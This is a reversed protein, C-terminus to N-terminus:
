CQHNSRSTQYAPKPASGFLSCLHSQWGQQCNLKQALRERLKASFVLTCCLCSSTRHMEVADARHDPNGWPWLHSLLCVHCPCSRPFSTVSPLSLIFRYVWVSLHCSLSCSSSFKSGFHVLRAGVATGEGCGTHGVWLFFLFYFNLNSRKGYSSVWLLLLLTVNPQWFM